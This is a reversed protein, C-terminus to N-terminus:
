GRAGVYAAHRVIIMDSLLVEGTNRDKKTRPYADSLLRSAAYNLMKMRMKGM